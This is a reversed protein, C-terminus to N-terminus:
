IQSRNAVKMEKVRFSLTRQDPLTEEGARDNANRLETRPQSRKM